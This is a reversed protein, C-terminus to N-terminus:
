GSKKRFPHVVLPLYSPDRGKEDLVRLTIRIASPTRAAKYRLEAQDADWTSSNIHDIFEVEGGVHRFVTYEGDPFEGQGRDKWIFIQDGYGLDSFSVGSGTAGAVFRVPFNAEPNKIERKAQRAIGRAATNRFGGYIFEKVVGFDKIDRPPQESQVLRNEAELRPTFYGGPKSDYRNDYFYEVRFDTVNHCVEAEMFRVVRKVAFFDKKKGGTEDTEETDLWRMTKVLTLGRHDDIQGRARTDKGKANPDRLFYEVNATRLKGAATTTAKFYILFSDHETAYQETKATYQEEVIMPAEDFYGK